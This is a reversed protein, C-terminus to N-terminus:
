PEEPGRLRRSRSACKCEAGSGRHSQRAPHQRRRWHTSAAPCGPPTAPSHRNPDCGYTPWRADSRRFSRRQSARRPQRLAIPLWGACPSFARQRRQKRSIALITVNRYIPTHGCIGNEAVDSKKGEGNLGTRQGLGGLRHANRLGGGRLRERPQLLMEAAVQELTAAATDEQSLAALDDGHASAADDFKQARGIGPECLLGADAAPQR